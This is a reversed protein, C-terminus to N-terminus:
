APASSSRDPHRTKEVSFPNRIIYQALREMDEGRPLAGPTRPPRQLGLSGLRAADLGARPCCGKDVLFTIVRARFLDELPKLGSGPMVHFVLACVPPRCGARVPPPPLGSVRRRHSHGHRHRPRRRAPGREHASVRDPVRPRRPVTKSCIATTASTRRLMKTIGFVFHRHPVPYFISEALLAGFFQVKKQHCSPCFWRGKRSFAL